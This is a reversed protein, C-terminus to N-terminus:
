TARMKRAFKRRRKWDVYWLWIGTLSLLALAIGSLFVLIQWVIGYHGFHLDIMVQEVKDARGPPPPTVLTATGDVDNVLVTKGAGDLRFDVRWESNSMTPMYVNALMADDPVKTKATALLQPINFRTETLAPKAPPGEEVGRATVAGPEILPAFLHPMAVWSGTVAEIILVLSLWLGGQRHLNMWLSNSKQWKFMQKWRKRGPWLLYLGTVSSIILLLGALTVIERGMWKMLLYGHTAHLAYVFGGAREATDLHERSEPDIWIRTRSPPGLGLPPPGNIQGGVLIAGKGAPIAIASINDDQGLAKEAKLIFAEDLVFDQTSANSYRAPNILSDFYDPWVLLSGTIGLAFMIVLTALGFWRHIKLWLLRTRAKPSLYPKKQQPATNKATM